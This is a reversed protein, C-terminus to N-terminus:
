PIVPPSLLCFGAHVWFGMYVGLTVCWILDKSSNIHVGTIVPSYVSCRNTAIRQLSLSLTTYSIGFFAHTQTYAYQIAYPGIVDSECGGVAHPYCATLRVYAVGVLGSACAQLCPHSIFVGAEKSWRTGLQYFDTPQFVNFMCSICSMSSDFVVGVILGCGRITADADFSM